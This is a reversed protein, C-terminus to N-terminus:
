NENATKEKWEDIRRARIGKTNIEIPNALKTVYKIPYVWKMDGSKTEYDTLDNGIEKSHATLWASGQIVGNGLIWFGVLKAKGNGTQVIGMLRNLYASPLMGNGRKMTFPRTEYIKSGNMIREIHMGSPDHFNLGMMQIVGDTDTPRASTTPFIMVRSTRAVGTTLRTICNATFRASLIM